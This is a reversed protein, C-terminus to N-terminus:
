VAAAPSVCRGASPVPGLLPRRAGWLSGQRGPRRRSCSVGGRGEQCRVVAPGLPGLPWNLSHAAEWSARLSRSAAAARPGQTIPLGGKDETSEPDSGRSLIISVLAPLAVPWPSFKRSLSHAGKPLYEFLLSGDDGLMDAKLSLLSSQSMLAARLGAVASAQHLAEDKEPTLPPGLCSAEGLLGEDM